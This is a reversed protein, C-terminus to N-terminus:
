IVTRIVLYGFGLGLVFEFIDGVFNSAKEHPYKLCFEVLEYLLFVIFALPIVLTFFGLILHGISYWDDFVNVKM